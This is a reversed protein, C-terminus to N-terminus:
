RQSFLDAEINNQRVSVGSGSIMFSFIDEGRKTPGKSRGDVDIFIKGRYGPANEIDTPNLHVFCLAMETGDNIIAKACDASKVKDNDQADFKNVTSTDTMNTTTFCISNATAGCVLRFSLHEELANLIAASRASDTTKGMLTKYVDVQQMAADLKMLVAKAKAINAKKQYSQVMNPITLAGVFGAIGAVLLVEALTFAVFRKIM